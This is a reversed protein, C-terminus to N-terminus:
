NGNDEMLLLGALSLLWAKMGRDPCHADTKSRLREVFLYGTIYSMERWKSEIPLCDRQILSLTLLSSMLFVAKKRKLTILFVWVDLLCSNKKHLTRVSSHVYLERSPKNFCLHSLRVGLTKSQTPRPQRRFILMEVLNVPSTSTAARLVVNLVVTKTPLCVRPGEQPASFRCVKFEHIWQNTCCISCTVWEIGVDRTLDIQNVILTGANRLVIIKSICSSCAKM